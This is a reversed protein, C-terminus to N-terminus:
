GGDRLVIREGSRYTEVVVGTEHIHVTVAGHTWTSLFQGGVERYPKAVDVTSRPAGQCSVVVKPRAWQALATTNAAVSGHHPSQLVDVSRAPSALLHRLGQERLDGMFLLSHGAYRVLLILSREDENEGFPSPPPHLVEIDVAGASLHQGASVIRIPVGHKDIASLVSAVGAVKTEKQFSPTLTVQGVTFRELLPPLGSYHDLHAHSLFVEDIRKIGRHWLFPAIHRQTVEPGTMAGADYLLM